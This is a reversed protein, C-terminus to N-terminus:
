VSTNGFSLPLQSAVTQTCSCDYVESALLAHLPQMRKVYDYVIYAATIM